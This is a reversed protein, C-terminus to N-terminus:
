QDNSEWQLRHADTPGWQYGHDLIEAYTIPGPLHLRFEDDIRKLDSCGVSSWGCTCRVFSVKGEEGLDRIPEHGVYAM